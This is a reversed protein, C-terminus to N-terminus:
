SKLSTGGSTQRLAERQEDALSMYKEERLRKIDMLEKKMAKYEKFRDIIDRPDENTSSPGKDKKEKRKQRRPSPDENM